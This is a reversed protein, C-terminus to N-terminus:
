TRLPKRCKQVENTDVRFSPDVDLAKVGEPVAIVRLM